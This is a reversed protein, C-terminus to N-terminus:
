TFWPALGDAPPVDEVGNASAAEAEAEAAAEARAAAKAAAAARTREQLEARRVSWVTGALGIPLWFFRDFSLPQFQAVINLGVISSIVAIAVTRMADGSSVAMVRWLQRLSAVVMVIFGLVALGGGEYYLRLIM